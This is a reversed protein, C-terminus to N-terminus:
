TQQTLTKRESKSSLLEEEFRRYFKYILFLWYVSDTVALSSTRTIGSIGTSQLRTTVIFLFVVAFRVKGSPLLERGTVLYLSYDISKVAIKEAM